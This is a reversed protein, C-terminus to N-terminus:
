RHRKLMISITNDGPAVRFRVARFAPLGTATSPDNSFGFDEAPLGIITRNFDSDANVDHYVAIAYFGPGPLNFCANSVPATAPPRVRLLRGKPALFRRADDPYVTVAMQGKALPVSTVRVNLRTDSARGECAAYAPLGAALAAVSALVLRVVTSKLRISSERTTDLAV